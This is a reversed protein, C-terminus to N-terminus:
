KNKKMHNLLLNRLFTSKNLGEKKSAEELYNLMEDTLFFNFRKDRMQMAQKISKTLIEKLSTTEYEKMILKEDELGALFYPIHKKLYLVITPKHFDLSKQVMFGVSLSHLSCEFINIDAERLFNINKEYLKAYAEHGKRELDEYFKDTPVNIIKDDLNKHGLSEIIQFIQHYDEDFFKKGRQSATFFVKM